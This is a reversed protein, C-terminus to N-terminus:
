HLTHWQGEHQIRPVEAELNPPPMGVPAGPPASQTLVIHVRPPPSSAAQRMRVADERAEEAAWRALTAQSRSRRKRWAWLFLGLVGMWVVSGSLLVPWFTYRKAADDRWEQELTFMDAGYADRLAAQFDQGARLREVLGQFRFQERKRVLFRVVDVAQAYAIEADSEHAPFGEDLKELPILKDSLTAMWLTQLRNLSTEGSVFVAFGEDFWRPVHAGNVAEHLGVHALEHRFVQVLDHQSNPHLPAVSLLTLGIQPYAVGAAYDPYPAEPPALTAMEGPTRALDVRVQTLVPVGLREALESRFPVAESILAQLRERTQPHYHFRIWGGDYTNFGDPLRTANLRGPALRPADQPSAPADSSDVSGTTGTRETSLAPTEARASSLNGVLQASWFLVACLALRLLRLSALKEWSRLPPLM